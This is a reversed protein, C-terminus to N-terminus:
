CDGGMEFLKSKMQRAFRLPTRMHEACLQRSFLGGIAHGVQFGPIDEDTLAPASKAKRRVKVYAFM